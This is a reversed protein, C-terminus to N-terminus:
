GGFVGVNTPNTTEDEKMALTVRQLHASAFHAGEEAMQGDGPADGGRSLVLGQEQVTRIDVGDALL